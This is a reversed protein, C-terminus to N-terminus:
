ESFVVGIIYHLILLIGGEYRYKGGPCRLEVADGYYVEISPSISKNRLQGALKVFFVFIQRYAKIPNNWLFTRSIM